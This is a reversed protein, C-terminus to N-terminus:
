KPVKKIIIYSILLQEKSRIFPATRQATFGVILLQDQKKYYLISLM